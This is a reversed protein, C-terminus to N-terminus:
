YTLISLLIRTLVEVALILIVPSFDLGGMNPMLNRIPNLFPAVIRDLAERIPHYPSLFFSLLSSAIVIWIFTNAIVRIFFALFDVSM